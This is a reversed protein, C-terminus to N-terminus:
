TADPCAYTVRWHELIPSQTGDSSPTLTMTLRLYRASATGGSLLARYLDVPCNPAPGTLLCEQIGSFASATVLEIPTASALEEETAAAAVAFRVSSDGPTVARFQLYSWQPIAHISDCTGQYDETYTRRTLCPGSGPSCRPLSCAANARNYGWNDDTRAEGATPSRVWLLANAELLASACGELMICAGPAIPTATSCEGLAADLDPAPNTLRTLDDDFVHVVAGPAAVTGHNCVPVRGNCPVDIALDFTTARPNTEGPNWAQCTGASGTGTPACSAGCVSDVASVCDANWNQAAAGRRSCWAPMTVYNCALDNWSGDLSGPYMHVCNENSGLNNPEGYNWPLSALLSEGNTCQFVSGARTVGLWSEMPTHAKLFEQQTQDTVCALDWDAGHARCAVQANQWTFSNNVRFYCRGSTPEQLEGRAVDCPAVASTECCTPNQDCIHRVCPDCSADLGAGQSCKDHSCAAATAVNVCHQNQQCDLATKCEARALAASVTPDLLGPDGTWWGTSASVEATFPGVPTEQYVQCTPDCPNTSGCPGPDSLNLLSRRRGIPLAALTVAGQECASWEADRCTQTGYYCSLVNGHQSLTRTCKRTQGEDCTSSTSGDRESSTANGHAMGPADHGSACGLLLSALLTCVGAFRVPSQHSFETVPIVEAGPL